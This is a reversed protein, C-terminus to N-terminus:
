IRRIDRHVGGMHLRMEDLTEGEDEVCRSCHCEFGYSSLLAHRRKSLDQHPNVYTIFLQQGPAVRQLAILRMPSGPGRQGAPVVASNPRCAHNCYGAVRYLSGGLSYGNWRGMFLLFVEVTDLGAGLMMACAPTGGTRKLLEIWSERVLEAIRKDGDTPQLYVQLYTYFALLENFEERGRTAASYLSILMKLAGMGVRSPREMKAKSLPGLADCFLAAKKYWEQGCGVSHWSRWSHERCAPSCFRVGCEDTGGRAGSIGRCRLTAEPCACGECVRRDPVEHFVLPHEELLVDRGVASSRCCLGRGFSEGAPDQGAHYVAVCGSILALDGGSRYGTASGLAEPSREALSPALTGDIQARLNQILRKAKHVSVSAFRDEKQIAQLLVKSGAKAGEPHQLMARLLAKDIDDDNAAPPGLM